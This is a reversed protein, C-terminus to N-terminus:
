RLPAQPISSTIIRVTPGNKLSTITGSDTKTDVVWQYLTTIDQLVPKTPSKYYRHQMEEDYLGICGHSAPYGPVDRGHLWFAVGEPNIYFRLAYHMPYPTDTNDIQYLSSDHERDFATIRFDGAPTPTEPTGSAIPLAFRLKGHEYAGLFQEALDVLIFKEAAAAEPYERPLPSFNTIEKLDRPVKLSAGAKFHRQDIRNFRLVDQWHNGFLKLPTDGDKLQRCDWPITSDSPHSVQCLDLLKKPTAGANAVTLALVILLLACGTPRALRRVL